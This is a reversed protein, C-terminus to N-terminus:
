EDDASRLRTVVRAGQWIEIDLGNLLKKAETVAEEDSACEIDTPPSAIKSAHSLTCIRYEPM